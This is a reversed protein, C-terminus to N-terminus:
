PCMSMRQTECPLTVVNM